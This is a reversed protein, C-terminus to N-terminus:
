RKEKVRYKQNRETIPSYTKFKYKKTTISDSKYTTNLNGQTDSPHQTKQKQPEPYKGVILLGAVFVCLILARM